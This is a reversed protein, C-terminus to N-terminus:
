YGSSTELDWPGWHQYEMIKSRAESWPYKIVNDLYDIKGISYYFSAPIQLDRGNSKDIVVGGKEVWAHGFPIGEVPGQGMVEGHVLVLDCDDNGLSCQGMMYQGASEYCDGRAEPVEQKQVMQRLSAQERIVTEAFNPLGEVCDDKRIGNKKFWGANVELAYKAPASSRVGARNFPHMNEINIIRGSETLYAISLPIYTNEMWFSRYDSDPFVFLMGSDIGLAERHMLGRNRTENTTALEVNIKEGCIYLDVNGPDHQSTMIERAYERLLNM